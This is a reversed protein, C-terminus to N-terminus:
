TRTLSRAVPADMRFFVRGELLTDAALALQAGAPPPASRLSKLSGAGHAFRAPAFIVRDPAAVASAMASAAASSARHLSTAM